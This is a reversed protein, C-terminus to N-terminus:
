YVLGDTESVYGRLKNKSFMHKKIIEDFYFYRGCQFLFAKMSQLINEFNNFRCMNM